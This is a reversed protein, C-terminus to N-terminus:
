YILISGDVIFSKTNEVALFEFLAPMTLGQHFLKILNISVM